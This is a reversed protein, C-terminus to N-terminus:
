IIGGARLRGLTDADYGLEGLVVDTHEGLAPAPQFVEYHEGRVKIPNGTVVVPGGTPHEYEVVAERMSLHPDTALDDVSNAPAIVCDYETAIAM